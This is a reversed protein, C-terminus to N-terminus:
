HCQHLLQECMRSCHRHLKSWMTVYFCENM